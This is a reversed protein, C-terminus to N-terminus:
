LLAIKTCSTKERGEITMVPGADGGSIDLLLTTAREIATEQLLQILAEKLDTLLIPIKEM